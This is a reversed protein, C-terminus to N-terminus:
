KPFLFLNLKHQPSETVVSLATLRRFPAEIIVAAEFLDMM